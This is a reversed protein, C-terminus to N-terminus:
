TPNSRQEVRRTRWIQVGPGAIAQKLTAGLAPTGLADFVVVGDDTVVFAASSNFAATTRTAMGGTGQVYWVHGTARIPKPEFPVQALATPSGPLPALACLLACWIRIWPTM